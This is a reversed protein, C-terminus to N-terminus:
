MNRLKFNSCLNIMMITIFARLAINILIGFQVQSYFGMSYRWFNAWTSTERSLFIVQTSKFSPM